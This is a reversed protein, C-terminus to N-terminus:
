NVKEVEGFCALKGIFLLRIGLNEGCSSSSCPLSGPLLWALCTSRSCLTCLKCVLCYPKNFRVLEYDSEEDEGEYGDSQEIRRRKSPREGTERSAKQKWNLKPTVHTGNREVTMRREVTTAVMVKVAMCGTCRPGTRVHCWANGDDDHNGHIHERIARRDVQLSVVFTCNIPSHM